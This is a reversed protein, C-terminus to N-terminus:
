PREPDGGPPLGHRPAQTLAEDICAEIEPRRTYVGGEDLKKYLPRAM